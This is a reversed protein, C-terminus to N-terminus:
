SEKLFNGSADFILDKGKIAAEYNVTGDVKTIKAGEKITKGKYHTKVYQLVAAPLLNVNLGIETETVTGKSNYLVSTAIGKDKFSAEYLGDEMEWKASKGPYDKEFTAKVPAPVKAASINQSKAGVASCAVLLVIM